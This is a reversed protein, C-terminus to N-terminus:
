LYQQTPAVEQQDPGDYPNQEIQQEAVGVAAVEGVPAPVCEPDSDLGEVSRPAFAPVGGDQGEFPRPPSKPLEVRSLRLLHASAAVFFTTAVAMVCFLVLILVLPDIDGPERSPTNDTLPQEVFETWNSQYSGFRIDDGVSLEGFDTTDNSEFKLSANLHLDARSSVRVIKHLTADVDMPLSQIVEVGDFSVIELVADNLVGSIDLSGTPCTHLFCIPESAKLETLLAHSRCGATIHSCQSLYTALITLSINSSATLEVYGTSNAMSLLGPKTDSPLSWIASSANIKVHFSYSQGSSMTFIGYPESFRLIAREGSALAVNFAQPTDHSQTVDFVVGDTSADSSWCLRIFLVGLLIKM